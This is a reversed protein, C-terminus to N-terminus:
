ICCFVFIKAIGPVNYRYCLFCDTVRDTLSPGGDRVNWICSRHCVFMDCVVHSQIEFGSSFLFVIEHSVDKIFLEM